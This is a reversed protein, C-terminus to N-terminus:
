GSNELDDVLYCENKLLSQYLKAKLTPTTLFSLLKRMKEQSTEQPQLIVAYKEDGILAKLDDAIPEVLSVRNILDTRHKEVFAAGSSSSYSSRDGRGYEAKRIKAKWVVKDNEASVTYIMFDEYADEIYIEFFNPSTERFSMVEPEVELNSSCNIKLKYQNNLRLNDESEGLLSQPKNEPNSKIIRKGHSSPSNKVKEVLDERQPILFMHLTLHATSETIHYIFVEAHVPPNADEEVVVGNGSFTPLRLRAHFPNVNCDELTIVGSKKIHLVKAASTVSPEAGVCLFHPLHVEELTGSTITIDMLPGCPKYRMLKLHDSIHEWEIIRYVFSVDSVCCWRLGTVSCEYQGATSSVNLQMQEGETPTKLTWCVSDQLDACTKCGNYSVQSSFDMTSTIERLLKPIELYKIVEESHKLLANMDKNHQIWKPELLQREMDTFQRPLGTVSSCCPQVPDSDNELMEITDKILKIGSKIVSQIASVDTEKHKKRHAKILSEAARKIEVDTKSQTYGSEINYLRSLKVAQEVYDSLLRALNKTDRYDMDM